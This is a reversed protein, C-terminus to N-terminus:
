ENFEYLNTLEFTVVLYECYNTAPDLDVKCHRGKIGCNCEKFDCGMSLTVILVCQGVINRLGCNGLKSSLM